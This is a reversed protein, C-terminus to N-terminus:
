LQARLANAEKRYAKAKDPMQLEQYCTALRDLERVIERRM